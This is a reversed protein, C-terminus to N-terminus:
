GFILLKLRQVFLVYLPRRLPAIVLYYLWNRFWYSNCKKYRVRNLFSLWNRLFEVKMKKSELNSIKSLSIPLDKRWKLHFIRASHIWDANFNGMSNHTLHVENTVYNKFGHLFLNLSFDLDYFHYGSYNNEDFQYKLAIDRKCCIWVGDLVVMEVLREDTYQGSQNKISETAQPHVVFNREYKQYGEPAWWSSPVESKYSSGAVGLSGIGNLELYKMAVNGWEQSDFHLDDHMFCLYPYKCRRIAENYASFISCGDSGKVVIIEFNIDGITEEINKKLVESIAGTRSCIVISIM